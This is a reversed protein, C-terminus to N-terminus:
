EGVESLPELHVQGRQVRVPGLMEPRFANGESYAEKRQINTIAAGVSTPRHIPKGCHAAKMMPTATHIAQIPGTRLQGSLDLM